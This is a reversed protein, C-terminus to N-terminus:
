YFNNICMLNLYKAFGMTSLSYQKLRTNPYHLRQNSIKFYNYSNLNLYNRSYTLNPHIVNPYSMLYSRFYKIPQYMLCLMAYRQPWAASIQRKFAQKTLYTDFTFLSDFM